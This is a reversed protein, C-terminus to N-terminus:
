VNVLTILFSNDTFCLTPSVQTQPLSPPPTGTLWPSSYSCSYGFATSALECGSSSVSPTPPGPPPLYHPCTSTYTHLTKSSCYSFPLPQDPPDDHSLMQRRFRSFLTFSPESWLKFQEDLFSRILEDLGAKRRARGNGSQTFEKGRRSSGKCCEKETRTTLGSM